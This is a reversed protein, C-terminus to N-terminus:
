AFLPQNDLVSVPPINHQADKEQQKSQAIALRSSAEGAVAIDQASPDAPALAARIVTEMNSMTVKHDPDESITIPVEGAVIYSKGNDKLEYVYSVGGCFAGGASMHAQEHTIVRNEEALYEADKPDFSDFGINFTDTNHSTILSM